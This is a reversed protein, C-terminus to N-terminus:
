KRIKKMDRGACLPTIRSHFLLETSWPASEKFIHETKNTNPHVCLHTIRSHFLLETSWQVWKPLLKQWHQKLYRTCVFSSQIRDFSDYIRDLHGERRDFCSQKRYLSSQKRCHATRRTPLLTRWHKKLYHHRCDKRLARYEKLQTKYEVIPHSRNTPKKFNYTEKASYRRKYLARKCFLGIIKLLRSITAVVYTSDMTQAAGNLLTTQPSM